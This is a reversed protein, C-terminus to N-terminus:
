VMLKLRMLDQKNKCFGLINFIAIEPISDEYGTIDRYAVRISLKLIKLADNLEGRWDDDEVFNYCGGVRQNDPIEFPIYITEIDDCGDVVDMWCFGFYNEYTVDHFVVLVDGPQYGYLELERQMRKRHFEMGYPNDCGVNRLNMHHKLYDDIDKIVRIKM